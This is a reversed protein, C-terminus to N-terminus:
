SGSPGVGSSPKLQAALAKLEQIESPDLVVNVSSTGSVAGSVAEVAGIAALVKGLVAFAAREIAVAGPSVLATVSEIVPEEAQVKKLAPIVVSVILRADKVIQHAASALAHEVTSISFSM